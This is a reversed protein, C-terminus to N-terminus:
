IMLRWRCGGFGKIAGDFRRCGATYAADIKERVTEPTSHLHAGFEVGPLESILGTFLPIINAPNSVGITDSLALIKIGSKESLKKCWEAAVEPNWIDGYPNGFAM